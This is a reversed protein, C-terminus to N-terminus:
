YSSSQAWCSPHLCTVVFPVSLRPFVLHVCVSLGGLRFPFTNRFQIELGWACLNVRREATSPPQFTVSHIINVLEIITWQWAREMTHERASQLKKLNLHFSLSLSLSRYSATRPPTERHMCAHTCQICCCRGPLCVSMM